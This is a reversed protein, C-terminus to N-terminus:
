WSQHTFSLQQYHDHQHFSGPLRFNGLFDGRGSEDEALVRAMAHDASHLYEMWVEGAVEAEFRGM